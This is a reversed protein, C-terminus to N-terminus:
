YSLMFTPIQGKIQWGSVSTMRFYTKFLSNCVGFLAYLTVLSMVITAM